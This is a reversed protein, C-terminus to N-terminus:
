AAPGAAAVGARRVVRRRVFQVCGLGVAGLALVTAPEPVPAPTFTLHLNNGDESLSLNFNGTPTNSFGSRDVVVNTGDFGSIGGTTTVLTWTFPSNPDFNLAPGTVDSSGKGFGQQKAYGAHRIYNQREAESIWDLSDGCLRDCEAKTRPSRKRIENKVKSFVMEIPNKDPSYAPLYVLEAGASRIAEAVGSVKHCRLNDMLVIDGTRLQPALHQRVYGRFIEGNLAGDIVPPAFSGTSRM